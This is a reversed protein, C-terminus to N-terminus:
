HSARSGAARHHSNRHHKHRHHKKKHHRKKRHRQKAPATTSPASVAPLAAATALGNLAATLNGGPIGIRLTATKAGASDPAFRVRVACAAGIAITQGTCEDGAITFQDLDAGVIAIQGTEIPEVGDNRIVLGAPASKTGAAQPGFALSGPTLATAAAVGLGSLPIQGGGEEEGFLSLRASKPGASIPAFRILASCGAGPLISVGTCSEEVLQFSASDGGSVIAIFFSGPLNGTNTLNITRLSGGGGVTATGFDPAPVPAEFTPGGGEGKLNATASTGAASVQLQGAFTGRSNPTFRVPVSCTAEPALSASSCSSSGNISFANSGSLPTSTVTIPAVGDNTVTVNTTREERAGILGFDLETPALSIEPLAGVGSIPFAQELGGGYKVVLFSNATGPATPEFNVGVACKGGEPLATSCTEGAIAFPGGAVTVGEVQVAEGGNTLEFDVNPSVEGVTTTPLVAPLPSISFPGVEPPAAGAPAAFTLLAALLASALAVTPGLRNGVPLPKKGM